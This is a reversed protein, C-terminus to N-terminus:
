RLNLKNLRTLLIKPVNSEPTAFSGFEENTLWQVFTEGSQQFYSANFSNYLKILDTDNLLLANRYPEFNHGFINLGKMDTYLAQSLNKIEDNSAGGINGSGPNGPLEGPLYQLPTQSKGKQYFYSFLVILVIIIAIALYIPM